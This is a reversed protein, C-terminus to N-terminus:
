FVYRRGAPRCSDPQEKHSALSCSDSPAGRRRPRHSSRTQWEAPVPACSFDLQCRLQREASSWARWGSMSGGEASTWARVEARKVLDEGYKSLADFTSEAGESTVKKSGRAKAIAAAVATVDIGADVFVKTLTSEQLAALILSDVALHSDGGQKRIGDAAKMVRMLASDPSVSDPPPDQKPLAKLKSNIVVRLKSADCGISSLLNAFFGDAASPDCFAALVDTRMCPTDYFLKLLAHRPLAM